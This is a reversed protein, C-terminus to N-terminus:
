IAEGRAKALAAIQEGRYATEYATKINQRSPEGNLLHAIDAMQKIADELAEYMEPAAAFLCANAKAEERSIRRASHDTTALVTAYNRRDIVPDAACGYAKDQDAQTTVVTPFSKLTAYPGKTFKTENM